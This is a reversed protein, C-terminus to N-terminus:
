GRVCEIRVIEPIIMLVCEYRRQAAAVDQVECPNYRPQRGGAGDGNSRSEVYPAKFTAERIV